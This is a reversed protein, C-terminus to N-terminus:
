QHGLFLEPANISVTRQWAEDGQQIGFPACRFRGAPGSLLAYYDPSGVRFNVSFRVDEASAAWKLVSDTQIFEESRGQAFDAFSRLMYAQVKYKFGMSRYLEIHRNVAESLM